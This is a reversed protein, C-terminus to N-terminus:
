ASKRKLVLDTTEDALAVIHRARRYLRAGQPTPDVGRRWRVSSGSVEPMM